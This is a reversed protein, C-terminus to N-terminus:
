QGAPAGPAAAGTPSKVQNLLKARVAADNQAIQLIQDYRQVSLGQDTVAQRMASEGQAAIKGRDDPKAQSLQQNYSQRLTIVQQMANAAKTIEQDSVASSGPAAPKAAPASPSAPSAPAQAHAALPSLLVAAAFAAALPPTPLRM